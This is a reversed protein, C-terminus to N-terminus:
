RVDWKKVFDLLVDRLNELAKPELNDPIDHRTHYTFDHRKTNMGIVTISPVGIRALSIADSGGIPAMGMKYDIGLAKFSDQLGKILVPSHTTGSLLERAIITFEAAVRVNDINLLHAKEQLLESKRLAAYARSGCLGREESGFSVFRLRTHQLVSKGKENSSALTKFVEFGIAIGSLNDSAGQVVEKGLMSWIVITIPSLLVFAAWVYLDYPTPHLAHVALFVSQLAILVLALVTLVVGAHGFRHWWTFEPTSDIHASLILTSKVEGQPELTATANSSTQKKGPMSTLVDRDMAMDLILILANLASLIAAATPWILYLALCIFYIAVYYKLKGFRADLYESFPLFETANTYEACKALMLRQAKAEAESGARRPGAHALIERILKLM